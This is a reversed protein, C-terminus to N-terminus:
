AMQVVLFRKLTFSEGKWNDNEKYKTKGCLAKQIGHYDIYNINQECSSSYKINEKSLLIEGLQICQGLVGYYKLLHIGGWKMDKIEFKMPKDLRNNKSQLNFHFSKKDTEQYSSYEEIINTNLYYGFVM